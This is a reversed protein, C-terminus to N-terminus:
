LGCLSSRPFLQDREECERSHISQDIFGPLLSILEDSHRRGGGAESVHLGGHGYSHWPRNDTDARTTAEGTVEVRETLKTLGFDLLKASRESTVLIDSPKLDRHVV